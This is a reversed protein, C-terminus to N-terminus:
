GQKFCFTFIRFSKKGHVSHSDETWVEDGDEWCGQIPGEEWSSLDRCCHFEGGSSITLKIIVAIRTTTTGEGVGSM